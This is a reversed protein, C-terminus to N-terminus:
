LPLFFNHGNKMGNDIGRDGWEGMLTLVISRWMRNWPSLFECYIPKAIVRSRRFHRRGIEILNKRHNWSWFGEKDKAAIKWSWSVRAEMRPNSVSKRIEGGAYTPTEIKQGKLSFVTYIRIWEIGGVLINSELSLGRRLFYIFYFFFLLFYLSSFRLPFSFNCYQYHSRPTSKRIMLWCLIASKDITQRVLSEYLISIFYHVSDHFDLCVIKNAGKRRVLNYQFNKRCVYTWM